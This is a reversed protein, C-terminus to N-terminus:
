FAKGIRADVSHRNGGRIVFFLLITAWQPEETQEILAFPRDPRAFDFLCFNVPIRINQWQPSSRLFGRRLPIKRTVDM